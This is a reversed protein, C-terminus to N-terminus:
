MDGERRDAYWRLHETRERTLKEAELAWLLPGISGGGAPDHRMNQQLEVFTRWAEQSAEFSTIANPWENYRERIAQICAGMEAQAGALSQAASVNFELQTRPLNPHLQGTVFGNLASFFDSFSRLQKPVDKLGDSLPNLGEHCIRHRLTFVCSVDRIVSPYDNILSPAGPNGSFGYQNTVLPLQEELKVACLREFVAVVSSLNNLAATQAVIDAFTLNGDSVALLLEYDPKTGAILSIARRTHERSTMVMERILSRCIVEAQAVARVPYVDLSLGAQASKGAEAGMHSLMDDPHPRYAEVDLSAKRQLLTQVESRRAM